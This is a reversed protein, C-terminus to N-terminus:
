AAERWLGTQSVPSASAWCSASSGAASSATTTVSRYALIALVFARHRRRRARPHTAARRRELRIPARRARQERWPRGFHSPTSAAPPAARQRKSSKATQQEAMGQSPVQRCEVIAWQRAQHRSSSGTGVAHAAYIRARRGGRRAAWRPGTARRRWPRSLAACGHVCPLLSGRPRRMSGSSCVERGARRASVPGSTLSAKSRVRVAQSANRRPRAQKSWRVRGTKTATPCHARRPVRDLTASRTRSHASKSREM